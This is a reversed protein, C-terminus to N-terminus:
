IFLTAGAGNCVFCRASSFFELKRRIIGFLPVFFWGLYTQKEEVFPPTITQPYSTHLYFSWESLFLHNRTEGLIAPPASLFAMIFAPQDAHFNRYNPLIDCVDSSKSTRCRAFCKNEFKPKHHIRQHWLSKVWIHFLNQFIRLNTSSSLEIAM